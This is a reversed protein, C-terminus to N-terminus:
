HSTGMVVLDQIFHDGRRVNMIWAERATDPM